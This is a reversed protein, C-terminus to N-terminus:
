INGNIFFCYRSFKANKIRLIKLKNAWSIQLNRLFYALKWCTRNNRSTQLCVKWMNLLRMDWFTLRTKIHFRLCIFVFINASKWIQMLIGKLQILKSRNERFDDSFKMLYYFNILESEKWSCERNVLCCSFPFSIEKIEGFWKWGRWLSKSM